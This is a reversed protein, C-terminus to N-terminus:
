EEQGADEITLANSSGIPSIRFYFSINGSPYEMYFLKEIREMVVNGTSYNVTPLLMAVINESFRTIIDGRRLNSRLIELLVAM